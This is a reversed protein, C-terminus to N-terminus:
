VRKELEKILKNNDHIIMACELYKAWENFMEFVSLAFYLHMRSKKIAWLRERIEKKTM